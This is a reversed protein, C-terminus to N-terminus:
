NIDIWHLIEDQVAYSVQVQELRPLRLAEAVLEPTNNQESIHGLVLSQLRELTLGQLFGRTQRNSLHGWKGSVRRKLSPPYAGGALMQEDHNSEVFLIDCDAYSQQVQPSIHGLDTLIGIRKGAAEFVYQCPEQADHPVTVARVEIDGLRYSHQGRVLQLRRLGSVSRHRATGHTMYVPVDYKLSLAQVGKIHDSHEHTVLIGTLDEASRGLLQLRKLTNRLSFGCDVLLCADGHEVLLANGRSGSGLAAFRM